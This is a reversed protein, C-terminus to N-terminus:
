ILGYRRLLDCRRRHEDLENKAEERAKALIAEYEAALISPESPEIVDGAWKARESAVFSDTLKFRDIEDDNSM